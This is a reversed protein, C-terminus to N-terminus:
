CCCISGTQNKHIYMEHLDLLIEDYRYTATDVYTDMVTYKYVSSCKICHTVYETYKHELPLGYIWAVYTCQVM